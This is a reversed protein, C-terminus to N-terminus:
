AKKFIRMVESVAKGAAKGAAHGFARGAPTTLASEVGIRTLDKAAQKKDRNKVSTYLSSMEPAVVDVVKSAFEAAPKRHRGFFHRM